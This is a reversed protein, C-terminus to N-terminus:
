PKPPAGGATTPGGPFDEDPVALIEHEVFSEPHSALEKRLAAIQEGDGSQCCPAVGSLEQERFGESNPIFWCGFDRSIRLASCRLTRGHLARELHKILKFLFADERTVRDAARHASCKIGLRYESKIEINKNNQRLHSSTQKTAAWKVLSQM